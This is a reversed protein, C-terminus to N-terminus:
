YRAAIAQQVDSYSVKLQELSPQVQTLQGQQARQELQAAEAALAIAGVNASAGKIYHAIQEASVTDGVAIANALQGLSAQVDSLFLQLLELEFEPDDGALQSLQQWDFPISM